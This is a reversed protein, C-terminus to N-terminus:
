SLRRMPIHFFTNGVWGDKNKLLIDGCIEWGEDQAQKLKIDIHDTNAILSMVEYKKIKNKFFLQGLSKIKEILKM